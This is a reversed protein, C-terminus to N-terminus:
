GIMARQMRGQNPPDGDTQVVQMNNKWTRRRGGAVGVAMQDDVAHLRPPLGDDVRGQDADRECRQRDHGQRPAGSSGACVHFGRSLPRGTRRIM